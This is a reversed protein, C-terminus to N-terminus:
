DKLEANDADEVNDGLINMLASNNAGGFAAGDIKNVERQLFDPLEPLFLEV